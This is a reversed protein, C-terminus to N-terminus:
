NLNMTIELIFEENSQSIRFTGDRKHVSDRINQLGFGHKTKDDKTTLVNNNHIEVNEPSTNVVKLYWYNNKFDSVIKIGANSKSAKACAEIANDLANSLIICLELPNLNSEPIVGKYKFDIGWETCKQAKESLISDAIYNGTKYLPVSEYFKDTLQRIYKEAESFSEEELMSVVCMMHKRFDHRFRRMETNKEDLMMYYKLQGKMKEELLNSTQEYHSRSISNFLLFIITILSLVVLIVTFVQIYLMKINTHATSASLSAALGSLFVLIIIILVLVSNSLLSLNKRFRRYYGKKKCISLFIFTILQAFFSIASHSLDKDANKFVICIIVYLASGLLSDSFVLFIATYVIRKVNNKLVIIPILAISLYQIAFLFIYYFPIPNRTALGSVALSLVSFLAILIAIVKKTSIYRDQFLSTQINFNNLLLM